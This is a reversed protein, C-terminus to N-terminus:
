LGALCRFRHGKEMNPLILCIKLSGHRWGENGCQSCQSSSRFLIDCLHLFYVTGKNRILAVLTDTFMISAVALGFSLAWCQCYKYSFTLFQYFVETLDMLM